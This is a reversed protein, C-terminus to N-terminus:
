SPATAPESRLRGLIQETNERIARINNFVWKPPATDPMREIMQEWSLAGSRAALRRALYAAALVVGAVIWGRRM